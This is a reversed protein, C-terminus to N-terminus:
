RTAAKYREAARVLAANPKADERDLAALFRDRDRDSLRLVTSERIVKQARRIAPALIFNTISEGVIAAAREIEQKVKPNVRVDLRTNKNGSGTSM